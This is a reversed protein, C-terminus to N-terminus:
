LMITTPKMGILKLDKMSVLRKINASYGSPVKVGHLFTCFETKEAKSLTYCTPPYYIKGNPRVLPALEPRIGMDVMDLRANVGDKIKDKMNLLLGLVSDCVNKEIHM